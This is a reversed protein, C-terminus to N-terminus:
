IAVYGWEEEDEFCQEIRRTSLDGCSLGVHRPKHKGKMQTNQQKGARDLTNISGAILYCGTM